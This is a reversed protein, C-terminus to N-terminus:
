ELIQIVHYFDNMKMGTNSVQYCLKVAMAATFEKEESDGTGGVM